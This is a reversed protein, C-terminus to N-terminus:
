IKGFNLVGPLRKLGPGRRGGAEVGDQIELIAYM